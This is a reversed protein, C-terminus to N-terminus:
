LDLLETNSIYQGLCMRPGANWSDLLQEASSQESCETETGVGKFALSSWRDIGVRPAKGATNIELVTELSKSVTRMTETELRCM